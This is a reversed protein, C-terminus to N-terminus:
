TKKKVQIQTLSPRTDRGPTESLEIRGLGRVNACPDDFNPIVFRIPGGVTEPLPADDKQYILIGRDEIEARAISASFTGDSSHLTIYKAQPLPQAVALLANLKLGRGERKPVLQSVDAIQAEAPYRSLDAFELSLRNRVLGEIVLLPTTSM